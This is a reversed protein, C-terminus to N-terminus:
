TRGDRSVVRNRALLANIKKQLEDNKAALNKKEELVANM